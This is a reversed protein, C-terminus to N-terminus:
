VETVPYVRAEGSTPDGDTLLIIMDISKEPLKKANRDTVLMDVAKLVADNIDTAQLFVITKKVSCLQIEHSKQSFCPHMKDDFMLCYRNRKCGRDRITKVYAMAESINEETAPSLSNRWSDVSSDFQIIGFHDEPHLDELIKIM